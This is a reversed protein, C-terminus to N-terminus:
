RTVAYSADVLAATVVMPLPVDQTIIFSKDVENDDLYDVFATGNIPKPPLYNLDGQKLKQVADLRYRSTGFRGGSTDHCRLGVRSVAKMTDQTNDGQVAFGLIFSEIFGTYGYGVVVSTTEQNLPITGGSVTFNDLFGGDAVVKVEQGNFRAMDPITNFTMYWLDYSTTTPEQLIQVGVVTASVYATVEFRGSEYGTKTKYVIHRGVSNNTFSAGSATIRGTDADYTITTTRLDQLKQGNDLYIADKLQEAIKRYHAEDDKEKAAEWSERNDEEEGYQVPSFFDKRQAFEIYPAQREIYFQGNYNNLAFLEQEGYNNAISAIDCIDAKSPHIHWGIIKEDANFNCSLLKGDFRLAFILDERTKVYRIKQIGGVTIDHAVVNADQAGFTETLLDYSFYNMRRGDNTIYFILSDKALPEVFSTGDADTMTSDVTEATIPASADGGNIAVIDNATGLVLSNQGRFLWEIPSDLEAVTLQLASEPLLTTPITHVKFQGDESAWLTTPKLPSAAYWLRGKFYLCVSPYDGTLVKAATGGSATGTFNTTDIDVRVQTSSIVEIVAATWDNIDTMGGVGAIKFRDNVSAGHAASFTIVANAEKSIGSLAQTAAWTKPFPDNKRSFTTFRFNNASLRKLERPEFNGHTVIISDFNQTYAKRSTIHQSQALDYPTAVELPTSGGNLVWGFVDNSAYSAFRIKNATFALLYNQNNSFRFEMLGCEQYDLMREFGTRYVANGKFNSIYNEFAKAGSTYIPLDFRGDLDHDVQGRAFNNHVSVVNLLSM